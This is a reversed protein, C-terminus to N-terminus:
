RGRHSDSSFDLSAFVAAVSCARGGFRALEADKPTRPILSLRHLIPTNQNWSYSGVYAHLLVMRAAATIESSDPVPRGARDTHSWLGKDTILRNRVSSQSQGRIRMSPRRWDRLAFRV